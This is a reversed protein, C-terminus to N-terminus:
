CRLVWIHGLVVLLVLHVWEVNSMDAGEMLFLDRLCFAQFSLASRFPLLLHKPSSLQDRSIQALPVPSCQGVLHRFMSVCKPVAMGNVSKINRPELIVTSPSQLWSILLHKSRSLFAIAFRSPMNFLLCMVKGVFTRITLATTKGITMYLHSLQVM